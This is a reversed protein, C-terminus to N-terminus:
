ETEQGSRLRPAPLELLEHIQALVEESVPKNAVAVLLDQAARDQAELEAQAEALEMETARYQADAASRAELDSIGKDIAALAATTEAFATELEENVGGVANLATKIEALDILLADKKTNEVGVLVAVEDQTLEPAQMESLTAEADALEARMGENQLVKDRYGVIQGVRSESAADGSVKAKPLEATRVSGAFEGSSPGTKAIPAADLTDGFAVPAATGMALAVISVKMFLAVRGM